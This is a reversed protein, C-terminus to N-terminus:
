IHNWLDVRLWLGSDDLFLEAHQFTILKQKRTIRRRLVDEDCMWRIYVNFKAPWTSVRSHRTFYNQRELSFSSTSKKKKKLWECCWDWQSGEVARVARGSGRGDSDNEEDSEDVGESRQDRTHPHVSGLLSWVSLSFSIWWSWLIDAVTQWHCFRGVSSNM